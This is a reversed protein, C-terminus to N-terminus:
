TWIDLRIYLDLIRRCEPTNRLGRTGKSSVIYSSLICWLHSSSWKVYSVILKVRTNFRYLGIWVFVRVCNVCWLRLCVWRSYVCWMQCVRVSFCVRVCLCLCMCTRVGMYVCVLFSLSLILNLLYLFLTSCKNIFCSFM